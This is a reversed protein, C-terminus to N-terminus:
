MDGVPFRAIARPVRERARGSVFEAAIVTGGMSRGRASTSMCTPLPQAASRLQGEPLPPAGGGHGGM